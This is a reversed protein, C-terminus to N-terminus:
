LVRFRGPLHSRLNEMSHIALIALCAGGIPWRGISRTDADPSTLCKVGFAEEIARWSAPGVIDEFMDLDVSVKRDMLNGGKLVKLVRAILRATLVDHAARLLHPGREGLLTKWSPRSAPSLTPFEGHSL